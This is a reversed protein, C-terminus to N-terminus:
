FNLIEKLKVPRKERISKNIAECIAIVKIGMEGTFIPPKDERICKIWHSIERRLDSLEDMERKIEIERPDGDRPKYILHTERVKPSWLFHGGEIYGRLSGNTGTLEISFHYGFGAMSFSISGIINEKFRMAVFLNDEFDFIDTTKSAIGYIEKPMGLYWFLLDIYHVPEEFVLGGCTKGKLRWGRSGTRWPPRWKKISCSTVEGLDGNDILFKIKRMLPSFRLEHGVTLKRNFKKATNVMKQCDFVNLAMPKEVFVHKGASLADITIKAHLYNPVVISVADIDNRALMERYDKYVDVGFKEVALKRSKESPVSVAVLEADKEGMYCEAHKQAWKGFGVIGIRIKDM